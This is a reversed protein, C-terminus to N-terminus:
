LREITIAGRFDKSVFYLTGNEIYRTTHMTTVAELAEARTPHLDEEIRRILANRKAPDALWEKLADRHWALRNKLEAPTQAYHHVPGGTPSILYVCKCKHSPHFGPTPTPKGTCLKQLQAASYTRAPTTTNM